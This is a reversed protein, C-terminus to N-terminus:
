KEPSSVVKWSITCQDNPVLEEVRFMAYMDRKGEKTHVVYLHGLVAHTVQGDSSEETSQGPALWRVGQHPEATALVVPVYSIDSWNMAGLDKIRSCDDTVMTVTFWDSDGFISDNGYELEYDNQTVELGVDSRVGHKFSFASKGYGGSEDTYKIRSFLTVQKPKTRLASINGSTNTTVGFAIMGVLLVVALKNKM